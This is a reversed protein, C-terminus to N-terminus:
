IKKLKLHMGHKLSMLPIKTNLAPPFETKDSFEFEFNLLLVVLALKTELKAFREGICTRQGDGFPM